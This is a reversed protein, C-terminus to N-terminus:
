ALWWREDVMYLSGKAGDRVRSYEKLVGAQKLEKVCNRAVDCGVHDLNLRRALFQINLSRPRTLDLEDLLRCFFKISDGSIGSSPSGFLTILQPSFTTMGDLRIM